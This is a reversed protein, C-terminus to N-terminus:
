TFTTHCYSSPHCMCRYYPSSSEWDRAQSVGSCEMGADVLTANIRRETMWLNRYKSKESELEQIEQYLLDNEEQKSKLTASLSAIYELLETDTQVGAETSCTAKQSARSPTGTCEVGYLRLASSCINHLPMPSVSEHPTGRAPPEQAPSTSNPM